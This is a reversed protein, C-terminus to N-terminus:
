KILKTRGPKGTSPRVRRKRIYMDTEKDLQRLTEQGLLDGLTQNTLNTEVRIPGREDKINLM